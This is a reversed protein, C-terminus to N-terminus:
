IRRVLRALLNRIGLAVAGAPVLFAAGLAAGSQAREVAPRHRAEYTALATALDPAGRLAADLRAAGLLAMSSGEGLITLSSAADGLLVVRGRSWSDATVRRVRDFYLDPADDVAALFEAARWGSGGYVDRLLAIQAERGVPAVDTRFIFAAGPRGGGPHVTLSRGPENYMEIRSPDDIRLPLPATAIALRPARRVGARAGGDGWLARRTASNQGDAGIVLDFREQAGSAFRVDVGAADASLTDFTDDYRVEAVDRAATTLVAALDTRPIEIDAADMRMEITTFARGDRGIFAITRAGTDHARVAAELGLGRVVGLAEGRIDVPSGSSRVGASREVVTVRHGSRGLFAGAAAGAIGAGVILIRYKQM